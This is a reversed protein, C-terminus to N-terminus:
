PGYLTGGIRYYSVGEIEVISSDANSEVPLSGSGIAERYMGGEAEVVASGAHDEAPLSGTETSNELQMDDFALVPHNEVSPSSSSGQELTQWEMFEGITHNGGAQAIGFGVGAVVMLIAASVLGVTSTKM